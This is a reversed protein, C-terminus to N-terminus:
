LGAHSPFSRFQFPLRGEVRDKSPAIGFRKVYSRSFQAGGGFGSAVAVSLLDMETGTVLSRARDLRVSLYYQVPTQGTHKAFIRVLQRQSIDVSQAIEGINLPTELNREMLAIARRLRKPISRGIPESVSPQQSEQGGRIRDVFIYRGAANAMQVGDMQGILHLAADAAALGGCCTLFNGDRAFIDENMTVAPFMERFSAIHEYHVAAARGDLLGAFALLTAATDLGVILAKSKAHRRLFGLVKPTNFREPEWSANVVLIDFQPQTEMSLDPLISLGNSARVAAGTEGVFQWHYVRKGAIYNAARFPDLFAAMAMANCDEFVLVGISVRTGQTM